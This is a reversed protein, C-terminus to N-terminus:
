NRLIEKIFNSAKVRPSGLCQVYDGNEHPTGATQWFVKTAVSSNYHMGHSMDRRSRGRKITGGAAHGTLLTSVHERMNETQREMREPPHDVRGAKPRGQSPACSQAFNSAFQTQFSYKGCPDHGIPICMGTAADARVWADLLLPTAKKPQQFSSPLITCTHEPTPHVRM